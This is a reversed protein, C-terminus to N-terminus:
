DDNSNQIAESIFGLINEKGTKKEASSVFLPPLEEWTELLKAEITKKSRVLEQPKLKDSKTLVIAMPLNREGMWTIFEFDIKQPPLRADILVFTCQLNERNILYQEIMKGWAYRAVARGSTPAVKRSETRLRVRISLSVFRRM